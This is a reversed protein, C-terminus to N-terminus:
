LGGIITGMKPDANGTIASVGVITKQEFNVIQYNM